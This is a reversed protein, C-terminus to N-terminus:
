LQHWPDPCDHSAAVNWVQQEDPTWGCTPCTPPPPSHPCAPPQADAVSNPDGSM